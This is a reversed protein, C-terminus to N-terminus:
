QQIGYRELKKRLGLRSLGLEEASKTKNGKNEIMVNKIVRRELAVVMEKLTGRLALAGFGRAPTLDGRIEPSLDNVTVARGSLALLKRVENELERINGPWTYQELMERARPDIEKRPKNPEGSFLGMFHDILDPIDIRRERLPPLTLTVGKLRYYLDQRFSGDEVMTRLDQNTASIIRVNVQIKDKGGVRRLEGEQLVRLLKKQMDVSMEGVEDLFLTGDSALEFLGKKQKNAGTFAGPEYGFLESELLSESIAACNESVFSQQKRAGNYHLARAVLEKGTGSEGQILVPVDTDTIRDLLRFLDQMRRSKGIIRGYSYRTELAQQKHELDVMVSELKATKAELDSELEKNLAEIYRYSELLEQHLQANKLALSAQSFYQEVLELHRDTFVGQKFRNDIYAVGLVDSRYTVPACIVSRLALDTVSKAELWRDDEAANASLVPLASAFVEQCLSTSFELETPDLDQQEFNRAVRIQREGAEEMLLFGREAGTLQIVADLIENLVGDLKLQRSLKSTATLLQRLTRVEEEIAEPSRTESLRRKEIADFRATGPGFDFDPSTVERDEQFTFHTNGISVRDGPRLRETTIPEGNLLTGNKSNLDEITYGHDTLQVRCHNRSSKSDDIAIQNAAGRGITMQKNDLKFAIEDGDKELILFPM